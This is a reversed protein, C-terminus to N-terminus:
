NEGFGPTIDEILWDPITIDVDTCVGKTYILKVVIPILVEQKTVDIQTYTNLFDELRLTNLVKGGGAEVLEFLVDSQKPHRMINLYTSHNGTTADLKMKPNYTIKDGHAVNNFNTYPLLNKIRLEYMPEAPVEDLNETVVTYSVKLHSSRFPVDEEVFEDKPINIVKSGLYLSDNGEVVGSGDANPHGFYIQSMDTASTNNVETKDFCNGVGVVRYTGANLDLKTGQFAKLARQEIRKTQVLRDNADFVYLSVDTIQEPFIDWDVDGTYSFTLTVMECDDYSEKICSTLLLFSALSLCTYYLLNKM